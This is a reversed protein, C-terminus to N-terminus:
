KKIKKEERLEKLKKDQEMMKEKIIRLNEIIESKKRREKKIVEELKKLRKDLGKFIEIIGHKEEEIHESKKGYIIKM